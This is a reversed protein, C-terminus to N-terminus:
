CDKMVSRKSCSDSTGFGLFIGIVFSWDTMSSSSGGGVAASTLPACFTTPSNNHVTVRVLGSRMYVTDRIPDFTRLAVLAM